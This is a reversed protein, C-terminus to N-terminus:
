QPTVTFIDLKKDKTGVTSVGAPKWCCADVGYSSLEYKFGENLFDTYKKSASYTQVLSCAGYSVISSINCVLSRVKKSEWRKKFNSILEKTLLTVSYCNVALM